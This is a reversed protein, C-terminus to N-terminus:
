RDKGALLKKFQEEDLVEVGLDRAKQLKSGPDEGAVVFDTKKSVSSSVKGGAERVAQEAQQRSFDKLTGTIVVTKGQLNGTRKRPEPPQPRVGAALLDDVVIRNRETRFYQYVSEAMVPGVQDVAELEEQSANMVADLSGFHDALIVASQGGVHRIGLAALFRWLPRTKSDEIAKLVNQASKEGMRELALLDEKRIRYVDAFTKVLSAEILQEILAIGLHEIDMQDRGAFYRLREKLQGYCDPNPCRVYVYEEDKVVETGCNPCKKPVPFPEAGEPRFEKKVEVVQPIIEGAKEIMVTDGPRVDLRRLEDFNHLSARKVTTGALLVPQLNAVPTLAGTKGVQVAISEVITQVREAPFKYAICWRPARGTERLIRRQDHRNIKIVMGDTQYPLGARRDAWSWCIEIVENIDKAKQIHSNVPLGLDKLRQLTHWHDDALPESVEGVAYAFFSLNRTATIRADLLKLSGAAANRPNAFASEGAEARAQNLTVFSKTPMYVEGRVELIDPVSDDSTAPREDSAPSGSRADLSSRRSGLSSLVLPVARITRINSTVDDGVEGDGRTAGTALVGSEYRLSVALGDIKLEVVYDYDAEGLQKRVREDFAKLEDASYTNDISLMPISHRITAFEGLPRGAVRQTPSDPTVLEPHKAELGKLEAFLEDYQQDTIEPANEIYYLHDHRRIERRLQDIRKAIEQTM